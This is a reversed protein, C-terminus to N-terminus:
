FFIFLFVLFDFCTHESTVTFTPPIWTTLRSYLVVFSEAYWRTLQQVVAHSSIETSHCHRGVDSAAGVDSDAVCVHSWNVACFVVGFMKWSNYIIVAYFLFVYEWLSSMKAVMLSSFFEICNCKHWFVPHSPLRTTLTSSEPVSPGPNLDCDRHQRTVTKPLSNVGM